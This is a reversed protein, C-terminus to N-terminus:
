GLFDFVNIKRTVSEVFTIWRSRGNLGFIYYKMTQCHLNDHSEHGCLEFLITYSIVTLLCSDRGVM